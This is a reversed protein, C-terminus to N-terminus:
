RKLQQYVFYAAIGLASFWLIKPDLGQVQNGAVNTTTDDFFANPNRAENLMGYGNQVSQGQSNTITSAAVVNNMNSGLVGNLYSLGGLVGFAPAIAAGWNFNRLGGM